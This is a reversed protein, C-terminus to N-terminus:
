PRLRSRSPSGVLAKSGLREQQAITILRGALSRAMTSAPRFASAKSEPGGSTQSSGPSRRAGSGVLVAPEGDRSGGVPEPEAVLDPQDGAVAVRGDVEVVPIDADAAVADLLDPRDGRPARNISASVSIQWRYRPPNM